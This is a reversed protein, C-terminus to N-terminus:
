GNLKLANSLDNILDDVDEIGIYLKKSLPTDISSFSNNFDYIFIKNLNKATNNRFVSVQKVKLKNESILFVAEINHNNQSLNNNFIFIFVVLIIKKFFYKL